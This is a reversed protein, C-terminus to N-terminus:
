RVQGDSGTVCHVACPPVGGPRRTAQAVAVGLVLSFTAAVAPLQLSFDVLSHAGVLVCAAFGAAPTTADRRRLLVGRACALALTAIAAFFLVAAPIGLELALELYDNHAMRVGPRVDPTRHSRYVSEFTGLGTGTLPQEGIAKATQSYIESRKTWDPGVDWLRREFGQSTLLLAAGLLVCAISRVALTRMRVGRAVVLACAFVLHALGTAAVAGRSLSLLLAFALLLWAALLLAHRPVFEALLFRLRLRLGGGTAAVGRQYPHHLAATACVLGLGCYTGFSNPNVFPGTVYGRYAANGFWVAGSFTMALGYLAYCAAGAAVAVLARRALPANGGYQFALWFVAVYTAIRLLSARSAAPDLSVSGKYSANLAAAAERWLPHHLAEPLFGVTQLLGWLWALGLAAAAFRLVPPSALVPLRATLTLLGWYSLLMGCCITLTAWAWGPFAGLPLPAALTVAILLHFPAPRACEAGPRHAPARRHRTASPRAKRFSLSFPGKTM